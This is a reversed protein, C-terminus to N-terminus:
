LISSLLLSLIITQLTKFLYLQLALLVLLWNLYIYFTSWFFLLWQSPFPNLFSCVIIQTKCKLMIMVCQKSFCTAHRVPLLVGECWNHSRSRSNYCDCIWCSEVTYVKPLNCLFTIWISGSHHRCMLVPCSICSSKIRWITTM